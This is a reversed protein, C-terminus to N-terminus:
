NHVSPLRTERACTAMMKKPPTGVRRIKLFDKKWLCRNRSLTRYPVPSLGKLASAEITTAWARRAAPEVTLEELSAMRHELHDLREETTVGLVRPPTQRAWAARTKCMECGDIEEFNSLKAM